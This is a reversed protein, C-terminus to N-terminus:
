PYKKDCEVLYSIEARTRKLISATTMIQSYTGGPHKKRYVLYTGLYEGKTDYVYPKSSGKKYVLHAPKWLTKRKRSAVTTGRGWRMKGVKGPTIKKNAM